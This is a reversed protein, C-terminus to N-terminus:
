QLSGLPRFGGDRLGVLLARGEVTVRFEGYRAAQYIQAAGEQFFFADPGVRLRSGRKRFALLRERVALPEDARHVRVLRAVQNQDPRVVLQGDAVDAGIQEVAERALAYDLVMYDGQILSRPDLPALELLLPKGQNLTREATLILQNVVGLVLMLNIALLLTRWRNGPRRFGALTRPVGGRLWWWRVALLVTGAATLVGAKALLTWDLQYYWAGLYLLLFALALGALTREGRGFGVMVVLAAAVLGPAPLVALWFLGGGVLVALRHRREPLLRWAVWLLVPGLGLSTLWPRPWPLDPWLSPLLLGLLGLALGYALPLGVPGLHRGLWLWVTVGALVWSFPHLLWWFQWHSIIVVGAGVGLLVALLRGLFDPWLALLALAVAVATLAAVPTNLQMGMGGVLLVQGTLSLALAAQAAFEGGNRRALLVAGPLLVTGAVLASGASDVLGALATFALLLLM